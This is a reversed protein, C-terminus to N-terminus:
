ETVDPEKHSWLGYGALSRQRPPPIGDVSNELSSCQLPNGNGERPSGGLGPTSSQDGANCASEKYSTPDLETGVVAEIDNHQSWTGHGLLSPAKIIM